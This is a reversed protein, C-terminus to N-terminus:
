PKVWCVHGNFLPRCEWSTNSTSTFAAYDMGKSWTEFSWREDFTAAITGKICPMSVYGDKFSSYACFKDDKAIVSRHQHPPPSTLAVITLSAVVLAMGVLVWFRDRVNM